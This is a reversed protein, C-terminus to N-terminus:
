LSCSIVLIFNTPRVINMSYVYILTTLFNFLDVQYLALKFSTLNSFKNSSPLAIWPNVNRNDFCFVLSASDHCVTIRVPFNHTFHIIKSNKGACSCHLILLEVARAMRTSAFRCSIETTM